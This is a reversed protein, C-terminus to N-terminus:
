IGNPDMLCGASMEQGVMADVAKDVVAKLAQGLEKLLGGSAQDLELDTLEHLNEIMNM